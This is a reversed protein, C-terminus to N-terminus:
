ATSASKSGSRSFGPVNVRQPLSNGSSSRTAQNSGSSALSRRLGAWATKISRNTSRRRNFSPRFSHGHLLRIDGRGFRLPLGLERRLFVVDQPLAAGLPGEGALVPVGLGFTDVLAGATTLLEEGRVGLVLRAGAPGAEELRHVGLLHLRERVVGVPHDPGLDAAGVAPAVQAVDEGVTGLGPTQAVAYIPLADHLSLPY